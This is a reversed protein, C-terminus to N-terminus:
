HLLNGDKDTERENIINIRNQLWQVVTSPSNNVQALDLEQILVHKRLFDDTNLM